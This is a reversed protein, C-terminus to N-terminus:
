RISKLAEYTEGTAENLDCTICGEEHPCSGCFNQPKGDEKMRREPHRRSAQGDLGRSCDAYNVAWKDGRALAAEFEPNMAMTQRLRDTM